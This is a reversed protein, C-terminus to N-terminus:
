IKACVPNNMASRLVVPSCDHAPLDDAEVPQNRQGKCLREIQCGDANIACIQGPPLILPILGTRDRPFLVRITM